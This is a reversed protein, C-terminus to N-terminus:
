SWNDNERLLSQDRLTLNKYIYFSKVPLYQLNSKSSFYIINWFLVFPMKDLLYYLNKDKINWAVAKKVIYFLTQFM